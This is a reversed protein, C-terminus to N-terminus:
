APLALTLSLGNGAVDRAVLTGEHAEAVGRAVWLGLGLGAQSGRAFWWDRDLLHELMEPAVAAGSAVVSFEVRGGAAAAGTRVAEVHPPLEIATCLLSSLSAVLRERDVSILAPAAGDGSELRVGKRAALSTVSRVAEAVLAAPPCRARDLRLRESGLLVADRMVTLTLNMRDAARKM